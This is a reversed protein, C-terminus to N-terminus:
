VAGNPDEEFNAGWAPYQYACCLLYKPLSDNQFHFPLSPTLLPPPAGAVVCNIQEALGSASDPVVALAPYGPPRKSNYMMAAYAAMQAHTAPTMHADSVESQQGNAAGAAAAPAAGPFLSCCCM